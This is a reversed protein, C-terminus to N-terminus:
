HPLQRLRQGPSQREDHSTPAPLSAANVVQVPAEGAQLLRTVAIPIGRAKLTAFLRPFESCWREEARRDEQRRDADATGSRVVNFNLAQRQPDLRLRIFYDGWAPQQFHAVGGSVFLTADIAEVTYGLDKLSQELVVAAAEQLQRQAAAAAREDTLLQVQRRLEMALAAARTDTPAQLIAQGLVELANPLPEDADRLVRDLLHTVLQQRAAPSDTAAASASTSASTGTRQAQVLWTALQEPAALLATLAAAVDADATNTAAALPTVHRASHAAAVRQQKESSAQRQQRQALREAQRQRHTAATQQEAAALGTAIEAAGQLISQAAILVGAELGFSAAMPGSM